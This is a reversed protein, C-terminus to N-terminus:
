TTPSGSLEHVFLVDAPLSAEALRVLHRHHTFLLVQTQRSLDGLVELAVRCRDDDFGVLIDDVILPLPEKDALYHELSALRLALYLQDCTGDSMGSLDVTTQGGPRLGVLVNEGKENVDAVLREFSRRTLRCFLESARRLIPGENKRRYREIAGQLVLSALRLRVYQPAEGGIQALLDQVRQAAEAAAGGTDIKRLEIEEGARIKLLEDRELERREIQDALQDIQGPLDDANVAQAEALFPEISAGGALALIQDKLEELSGRLQRARDSAREVEPLQQRGTCGAERCATELRATLDEMERSATEWEERYRARQEQLSEQKQRDALARQLRATLQEARQDPPSATSDGDVRRSLDEVQDFFARADLGIKEIRERFGAAKELLAFVTKLEALWDNAQQPSTEPPLGLPRIAAAWQDQWRSLEAEAKEVGARAASLRATHQKLEKTVQQRTAALLRQQELVSQCRGLLASLPLGLRDESTGSSTQGATNGAASSPLGATAATPRIPLGDPLDAENGSPNAIRGVLDHLSQELEARCALICEDIEAVVSRRLRIQAAQQALSQQRQLWTRMERPSHPEVGLPRWCESWAQQSQGRRSQTAAMQQGLDALRRDLADRGSELNAREAVRQAERRLRDALDDAAHVAELYAAALDPASPFHGLFKALRQDDPGGQQWAALVLQWGEDRLRRAAAVDAESPVGAELRLKELRREHDARDSTASKLDKQLSGLEQDLEALEDEFRQLTELSPVALKELEDLTGSWQGLRALDVASQQQVQKLAGVAAARKQDLDGQKQIRQLADALVTTDRPGELGALQEEASRLQGDSEEAEQRAKDLKQTLAGHRLGLDGIAREQARTLRLRDVEALPFNPRLRRLTAAAEAEQQRAASHLSPLDRQAKRYSGLAEPLQRIADALTLLREPIELRALQGDIRQLEDGATRARNEAVTLRTEAQRRREAFDAPLLVVDGLSVIEGQRDRWRAIIPLAQRIRELRNRQSVLERLGRDTAALNAQAERLAQDHKAWEESPLQAERIRARQDRLLALKQNISPASGRPLFFKDAEKKLNERVSRLGAIGSGAAFLLQGVDGSGRVIEKGGNVLEAHDIGFMRRFLDRDVHGLLAALTADAIPTLNDAALLSNKVAKRRLFELCNGSRDAILAGVRLNAYSHLFADTSRPPIGFLLQDVARLASTKGAENPGYIVHLGQKGGSLDLVVDTFPGFARLDLRLLRM